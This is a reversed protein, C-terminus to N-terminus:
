PFPGQRSHQLGRQEIGYTGPIQSRLMRPDDNKRSLSASPLIITMYIIVYLALPAKHQSPPKQRPGEHGSCSLAQTPFSISKSQSEM